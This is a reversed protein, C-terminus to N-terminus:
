KNLSEAKDFLRLSQQFVSDAQNSIRYYGEEKWFFKAIDAKIENMIWAKSREYETPKFEINVQALLKLFDKLISENVVFKNEFDTLTKSRWEKEHALAYRLAFVTLASKAYIQNLFKTLYMTDLSVFSDPMVGGGGYVVRGKTTKYPVSKDLKVSDAHYLEAHSRNYYENMYEDNKGKEYPKQICRGSPTYYRSITLRLESGDKLDIPRQVLGKGFSRRGVIWARDHDQLSGSVIESASASNEDILVILNGKEFLGKTECHYKEDFQTNKSKTYVVLKEGELFEDIIKIAASMYGGPNDRLDLVLQKMGSQIMKELAEKFEEYTKAGFRNIKLYGTKADVMYSVDVTYLPIKGRTITIKLPQKKRLVTVLVKTGSEGKLKQHVHDYNLSDTVVSKDDVAIIQDGAQLGEAQAPSGEMTKLVVITDRFINFEIGIGDFNGILRSNAEKLDKAPIYSTHPDLQSLMEKIAREAIENTNVSDVYYEDINILIDKLKSSASDVSETNKKAFMKAGILIGITLALAVFIPLRVYLYQKKKDTM